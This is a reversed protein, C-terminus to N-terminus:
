IKFFTWKGNFFSHQWNSSQVLIECELCDKFFLRWLLSSSSQIFQDFMLVEGNKPPFNFNKACGQIFQDFM